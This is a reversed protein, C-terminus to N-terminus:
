VVYRKLFGRTIGFATVFARLIIIFPSAMGVAIDKEAIHYTLLASPLFTFLLFGRTIAKYGATPYILYLFLSILFGAVCIAEILASTPTYSHGKRFTKKRKAYVAVRWFANRYKQKLYKRLTNPHTHYVFAKPAFVMKYGAEAIRFSLEPDEGASTSFSEDFGGFKDFIEKRYGASFTGIFDISGAKAMKEHREEIEYQAFRAILEKQRTRYTGSVGVVSKDSKFPAVMESVWNKDPECDSDTFLLIEGKAMKAGFNRESAPGKHQRKFFKVNKFSKVISATDDSSGDDVVIVEIDKISQSQLAQLCGRITKESNYAPIIVSIM